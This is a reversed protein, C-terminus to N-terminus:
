CAPEGPAGRLLRLALVVTATVIAAVLGAGCGLSGVFAERAADILGSSSPACVSRLASLAGGLTAMARAITEPALGLSMVVTGLAPIGVDMCASVLTLWAFGLAAVIALPSLGAAAITAGFRAGIATRGIWALRGSDLFTNSTAMICERPSNEERRVVPRRISMSRHADFKPLAPSRWRHV